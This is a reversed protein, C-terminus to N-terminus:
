PFTGGNSLILAPVYEPESSAFLRALIAGISHSVIVAESQGFSDLLAKLWHLLADLSMEPLTASGSFGPLDPAFVHYEEALPEIVASWNSWADGFGGSLLLLTRGNCAGSEYYHVPSGEVDIMKESITM